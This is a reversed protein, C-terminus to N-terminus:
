PSPAFFKARDVDDNACPHGLEWLEGYDYASEVMFKAEVHGDCYSINAMGLHRFHMTPYMTWMGGPAEISSSYGLMDNGFNGSADVPIASDAFMVKASPAEIRSINVGSSFSEATWDESLMGVLTNYGYGGSGREFSQIDGPVAFAECPSVKGNPLYRTLCGDQTYEASGGASASVGHWRRTNRTMMDSAYPVLFDGNDDAYMLNAVALQKLNNRCSVALASQRARGLSPLLMAALVAIIAIVVLLEILTFRRFM